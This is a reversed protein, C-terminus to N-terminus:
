AFAAHEQEHSGSIEDVRPSRKLAIVDQDFEFASVTAWPSRSGSPCGEFRRSYFSFFFLFSRLSIHSAIQGSQFVCFIRITATDGM